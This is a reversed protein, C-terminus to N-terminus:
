WFVRESPSPRIPKLMSSLKISTDCIFPFLPAEPVVKKQDESFINVNSLLDRTEYPAKLTLKDPEAIMRLHEIKSRASDMEAKKHQQYYSVLQRLVNRREYANKAYKKAVRKKIVDRQQRLKKSFAVADTLKSWMAAKQVKLDPKSTTNKHVVQKLSMM